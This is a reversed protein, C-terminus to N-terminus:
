KPPPKADDASTVICHNERKAVEETAITEPAQGRVCFCDPWFLPAATGGYIGQRCVGVELSVITRMNPRGGGPHYVPNAKESRPVLLWLVKLGSEYGLGLAITPPM